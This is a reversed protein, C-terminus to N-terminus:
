CMFCDTHGFIETPKGTPSHHELLLRVCDISNCSAHLPTSGWNTIANVSAGWKLLYEASLPYNQSCSVYLPSEGSCYHEDDPPAGRQLLQLVLGDNGILTAQYLQQSLNDSHSPSFISPAFRPSFIYFPQPKFYKAVHM